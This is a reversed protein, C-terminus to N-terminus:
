APGEPLVLSAPAVDEAGITQTEAGPAASQPQEIILEPAAIVGGKPSISDPPVQEHHVWESTGGEGHPDEGEADGNHVLRELVIECDPYEAKAAALFVAVIEDKPTTEGTIPNVFDDIRGLRFASVAAPIVTGDPQTSEPHHIAVRM